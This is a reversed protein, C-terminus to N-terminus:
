ARARRSATEPRRTRSVPVRKISGIWREVVASPETPPAPPRMWSKGRPPQGCRRRALAATGASACCGCRGCRYPARRQLGADHHRGDHQSFERGVSDPKRWGRIEQSTHLNVSKASGGLGSKEYRSSSNLAAEEGFARRHLSGRVACSAAPIATVSASSAAVITAPLVIEAERLLSSRGEGSHEPIVRIERPGVTQLEGSSSAPNRVAPGM